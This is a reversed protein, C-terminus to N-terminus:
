LGPSRRSMFRSMSFARYCAWGHGGVRIRVSFDGNKLLRFSSRPHRRNIGEIRVVKVLLAAYEPDIAVGIRRRECREAQMRQLMAPLLRGANDGVVALLEAGVAPHALDAVIEAGLFHDAPQAATGGDAVDAIRRGALDCQAVHLREEGIELEAPEGNAVVAIQGVGVLNAALQHTAAAQELRRAVGFDNNVQDRRAELLGDDVPQDVRQPLDLAGKRQHRERLVLDDSHAIGAAHPRQNEATEGVGPDESRLGTREVDDASVEDAIDCCSLDDDNARAAYSAQPWEVIAFGTEANELVDVEGARVADYLPAADVLRTLADPPFEGSLTRDIGVDDDRNGIGTHGCCDTIGLFRSQGELESNDAVM